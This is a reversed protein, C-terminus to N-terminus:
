ATYQVYLTGIPFGSAAPPTADTNYLVMPTYATDASSNDGTITVVGSFIAAKSTLNISLADAGANDQFTVSTGTIEVLASATGCGMKIKESGNTTDICLYGVAGQVISLAGSMNDTLDFSATGSLILEKMNMVQTKISPDINERPNDYGASGVPTLKGRSRVVPSFSNLLNKRAM